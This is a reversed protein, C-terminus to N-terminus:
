SGAAAGPARLRELAERLSAPSRFPSIDETTPASDVGRRAYAGLVALAVDAEQRADAARGTEALLLALGAHALNDVPRIRLSLRYAREADGPHEKALRNGMSHLLRAFDAASTSADVGLSAPRSFFRQKFGGYSAMLADLEDRERRDLQGWVREVFEAPLLDPGPIVFRDRERDFAAGAAGQDLAQGRHAMVARIGGVARDREAPGTWGGALARGAGARAGARRDLRDIVRQRALSETMGRERARLYLRFLARAQQAPQRKILRVAALTVAIFALYGSYPPPMFHGLAWTLAVVAVGGALAQMAIQVLRARPM